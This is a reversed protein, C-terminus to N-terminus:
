SAQVSYQDSKASPSLHGLLDGIARLDTLDAAVAEAAAASV